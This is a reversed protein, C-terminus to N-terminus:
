NELGSALHTILRPGRYILGTYVQLLSAGAQLRQNAIEIDDIGGVSILVVADGVAQKLVTLCQLARSILPKGSLGGEEYANPLGEVGNRACTTNTAIIGDIQHSLIVETMKKLEEDTEDPSIKIVLPVYRQQQDALRMQEEKLQHILKKFYDGQQLQRLDPTNPSSINISVYSAHAYVKRLCYLYDEAAHNLSTDKNKGINIGLIGRYRAKQVNEVLVDVGHNNFGMRNIVAQAAPIRWLRPKANGVQPKPTVTGAEIFSFGLKELAALYAGNKDFGAALGVRHPFELGMVNIRRMPKKAFLFAPLYPLISLTLHHAKEADLRFLWSRILQYGDCCLHKNKEQKM